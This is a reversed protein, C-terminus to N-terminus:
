GNLYGVHRRITNPQQGVVFFQEHGVLFEGPELILGDLSDQAYFFRRWPVIVPGIDVNIQACFYDLVRFSKWKTGM